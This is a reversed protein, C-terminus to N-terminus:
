DVIISYIILSITIAGLFPIITLIIFPWPLLSLGITIFVICFLILLEFMILITKELIM